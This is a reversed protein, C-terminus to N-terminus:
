LGTKELLQLLMTTLERLLKYFLRASLVTLDPWFIIFNAVHVRSRVRRRRGKDVQELLTM